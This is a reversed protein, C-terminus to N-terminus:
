AGRNPLQARMQEVFSRADEAFPDVPTDVFPAPVLLGSNRVDLVQAGLYAPEACFAIHDLYARTIRRRTRNETWVQGDPMPAMGVSVDLVGDAALELTEDGIPTRSARVEAVLGETRSAHLQVARGFTRGKDHDRNARVSGARREVGDFTGPAVSERILRDRTDPPWPALTEDDYPVVICEIVREKHHVDGLVGATRWEVPARPPAEIDALDTM